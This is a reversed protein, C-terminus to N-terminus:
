NLETAINYPIMEGDWVFMKFEPNQYSKDVSVSYTKYSESEAALTVNEYVTISKLVDGDYIAGWVTVTKESSTPNVFYKVADFSDAIKNIKVGDKNFETLVDATVKAIEVRARVAGDSSIVIKDGKTLSFIKDASTVASLTELSLERGGAVAKITAGNESLGSLIVRYFGSEDATFTYGDTLDAYGNENAYGVGLIEGNVLKADDKLHNLDYV